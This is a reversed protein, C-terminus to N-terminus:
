GGVEMEGWSWANEGEEPVPIVIEQLWRPDATWREWEVGEPKLEVILMRIRDGQRLLLEDLSIALPNDTFEPRLFYEEKLRLEHLSSDALCVHFEKVRLGEGEVLVLRNLVINLQPFDDFHRGSPVIMFSDPIDGTYASKVLEMVKRELPMGEFLAVNRRVRDGTASGLHIVQAPVREPRAILNYVAGGCVVFLETPTTSYIMREGERQVKLKVFANRGSISVMVGKEQSFVVDKIPERCVIRNADTSSIKVNTTVEPLVRVHESNVPYPNDKAQAAAVTAALCAVTMLTKLRM